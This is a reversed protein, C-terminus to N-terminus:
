CSTSHNLAITAKDWILGYIKHASILMTLLFLTDLYEVQPSAEVDTPPSDYRHLEILGNTTKNSLLLTRQVDCSNLIKLVIFTEILTM